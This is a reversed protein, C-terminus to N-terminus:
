EGHLFPNHTREHGITTPPGHGPYVTTEDPLTLLRTRISAILTDSDGEWLDTRGVSEHFLVDGGVLLGGGDPAAAAAYFAVSGPSHGPVHLVHLRHGGLAVEDGDALSHAAPPPPDVRVGFMEGQLVANALLPGDAPHMQWGGHEATAGYIRQFHACGFVHDVHGHTLLLHRVRLGLAEVYAEVADREARTATGPDVLAAETGDHLVVANEAFPSVVFTQVTLPM